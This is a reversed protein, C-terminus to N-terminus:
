FPKDFPKSKGALWAIEEQTLARNYIHVEDIQGM